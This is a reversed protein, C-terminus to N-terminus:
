REKVLLAWTHRSGLPSWVLAQAYRAGHRGALEAIRAASTHCIPEPRGRLRRWFRKPARRDAFSFVVFRRAVRLLEGLARDLEADSPLHHALRACVAGDVADDRLPIHFASATMWAGALSPPFCARDARVQEFSIDAEILLDAHAGIAGSLRAMGGCPLDLVAASRAQPALLRRLIDEESRRRQRHRLRARWHRPTPEAPQQSYVDQYEISSAGAEAAGLGTVGGSRGFLPIGERVPYEEGCGACALRADAVRLDAAACKPCAWLPALRALNATAEHM